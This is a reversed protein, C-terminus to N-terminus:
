EGQAGQMLDWRCSQCWKEELKIMKDCGEMACKHMGSKTANTGSREYADAVDQVMKRVREIEDAAELMLWQQRQTLNSAREIATRLKLPLDSLDSNAQYSNTAM